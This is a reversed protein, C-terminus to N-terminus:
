GAPGGRAPDNGHRFQKAPQALVPRRRRLAPGVAVGNALRYASIAPPELWEASLIRRPHIPEDPATTEAIDSFDVLGADLDERRVTMDDVKLSAPTV